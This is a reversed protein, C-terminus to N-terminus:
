DQGIRHSDATMRQTDESCVLVEVEGKRGYALEDLFHRVGSEVPILSVGRRTFEHRLEASVMGPADWPGWNISVVRGPWRHDLYIALKNLVENAAAYDSQGRNGFRGSVSAFFALFQLRAPDLKRSLTFAGDLKAGLVRGFSEVSKDKILKDEVVGAGHIVGDLRGCRRYIDDILASFAAADRTDVAHYDVTAGAQRMAALNARMEREQLLRTYAAEVEALPVKGLVKLLATKIESVATLGATAPSEMAPPLPSRGVLILRPRYRSALAQAVLATIGRAGGTVLVVAQEDLALRVPGSTDVPAAVMQLRRRQSGDIGVEVVGDGITMEAVIAEAAAAPALPVKFDVAKVRVSPMEIAATKLFGVVGGQGPFFGETADASAFAGGLATAALLCAGGAQSAAALDDQAAQTLLFLSVTEANLAGRWGPLDLSEFALQRQLPALHLLSGIPGHDQRVAALLAQVGAPHTLDAVYSQPGARRLEAGATVLISRDGARRLIEAVASAIGQGDDTILIARGPALAAQAGTLPLSLPALLHRRIDDTQLAFEGTSSTSVLASAAAPDDPSPMGGGLYALMLRQQSELFEAMLQEYHLMVQAVEDGPLAPLDAAVSTAAIPQTSIEV